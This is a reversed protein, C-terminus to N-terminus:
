ADALNTRRVRRKRKSGHMQPGEVWEEDEMFQQQAKYMRWVESDRKMDMFGPRLDVENDEALLEALEREEDSELDSHEEEDEEESSVIAGLGVRAHQNGAHGGAGRGRGRAATGGRGQGRGRGRAGHSGRAASGQGRGRGRGQGRARGAGRGRVPTSKGRPKYAGWLASWSHAEEEGDDQGAQKKRQKEESDQKIELRLDDIPKLTTHFTLSLGQPTIADDRKGSPRVLSGTQEAAKYFRDQGRQKQIREQELEDYVESCWKAMLIRRKPTPISGAEIYKEADKTLLWEFYKRNLKQKWSRGIGRDVVQWIHTGNLPGFVCHFDAAAMAALYAPDINGAASDLVMLKKVGAPIGGHDVIWKNLDRSHEVSQIGDSWACLQYHMFVHKKYQRAEKRRAKHHAQPGRGGQTILTPYPQKGRGRATLDLTFMRKSYAGNGIERMWVVTAGKKNITKGDDNLFGLPVQDRFFCAEPGYGGWEEYTDSCTV